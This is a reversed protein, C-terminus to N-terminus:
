SSSPSSWPFPTGNRACVSSVANMYGTCADGDRFTEIWARGDAFGRKVMVGMYFKGAVLGLSTATEICKQKDSM